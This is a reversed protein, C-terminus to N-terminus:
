LGAFVKKAEDEAVPDFAKLIAGEKILGVIDLKSIAEIIDELRENNFVVRKKSPNQFAHLKISCGMESM